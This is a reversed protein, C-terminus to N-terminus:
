LYSILLVFGMATSLAIGVGGLVIARTRGSRGDQTVARAISTVGLILGAIVMAIVLVLIVIAAASSVAQADPDRTGGFIATVTVAVLFGVIWFVVAAGLALGISWWGHKVPVQATGEAPTTTM